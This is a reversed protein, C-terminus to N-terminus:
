AARPEDREVDLLSLDDEALGTWLSASLWLDRNVMSDAPPSPSGRFFDEFLTRISGVVNGRRGPEGPGVRHQEDPDLEWWALRRKGSFAAEGPDPDSVAREVVEREAAEGLSNALFQDGDFWNM